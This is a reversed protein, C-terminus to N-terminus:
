VRHRRLRLHRCGHRAIDGLELPTRSHWKEGAGFRLIVTRLLAQQAMTAEDRLLSLPVKFLRGGWVDHVHRIMYNLTYRNREKALRNEPRNSRGSGFLILLRLRCAERVTATDIHVGCQKLYKCLALGRAWSEYRCMAGEPTSASSINLTPRRSRRSMDMGLTKFGWQVIASQRRITFIQRLPSQTNSDPLFQAALVSPRKRRIPNEAFPTSRFAAFRTMRRSYFSALWISLTELEELRGTMGFYNHVQNWAVPKIEGGSQLIKLWMNTTFLLDDFHEPVSLSRRGPARPRLLHFFSRRVSTGSIAVRNLLMDEFMQTIMAWNKEEMYSRFVVNWAERSPNKHFVTLILLTRHAQPWDKNVIYSRLLKEQIVRDDFVDPHQDSSLISALLVVRNEKALKQLLESFVCVKISIGKDKMHRISSNIEEPSSCRGALERLALPGLSELGLSALGSTILGISFFRTAFLRACFQDSIVKPTIGHIEGLMRNMIERSTKVNTHPKRSTPGGSFVGADVLDKNMVGLFKQEGHLALIHRLQDTVAATTPFDGKSVLYSHWSMAERYDGSACLSTIVKDYLNNLRSDGYIQRFAKTAEKSKIASDFLRSFTGGAPPGAKSLRQNWAVAERPCSQLFFGLVREYLAEYYHGTQQLLASACRWLEYLLRHDASYKWLAASIVAGWLQDAERGSTPLDINRKRMGRWIMVAGKNGELRVRFDMLQAWLRIDSAYMPNDVLRPVNNRPGIVNSEHWFGAFSQIVRARRRAFTRFSPTSGSVHLGLQLPKVVPQLFFPPLPGTVTTSPCPRKNTDSGHKVTRPRRFSRVDCKCPRSRVAQTAWIGNSTISSFRYSLVPRILWKQWLPM